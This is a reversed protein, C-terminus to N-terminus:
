VRRSCFPRAPDRAGRFLQEPKRQSVEQKPFHMQEAAGGLRCFVTRATQSRPFAPRWRRQRQSQRCGRCCYRRSGRALRRSGTGTLTGPGSDAETGGSVCSSHNGRAVHAGPLPEQKAGRPPRASGQRYVGDRPSSYTAAGLALRRGALFRPRVFGPGDQGPVLHPDTGHARGHAAGRLGAARGQYERCGPAGRGFAQQVRVIRRGHRGFARAERLARTGRVVEAGGARGATRLRRGGRRTGASAGPARRHGAPDGVVQQQRQVLALMHGPRQADVGAALQAALYAVPTPVECPHRPTPPRHCASTNPTKRM